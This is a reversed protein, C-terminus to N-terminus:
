LSFSRTQPTTVKKKKKGKREKEEQGILECSVSLMEVGEKEAIKAWMMLMKSYSEWWGPMTMIDGRWMGQSNILDVHPKLLVKMGLRHAERIAAVVSRPPESVYEYGWFTGPPDRVQMAPSLPFIKSSMYSRQYWTVVIAVFNCGTTALHQLSAMGSDSDMRVQPCYRDGTFSMGKIEVSFSVTVFLFLFFVM